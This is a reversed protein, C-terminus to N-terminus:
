HRLKRIPGEEGGKSRKELFVTNVRVMVLFLIETEQTYQRTRGGDRGPAGM